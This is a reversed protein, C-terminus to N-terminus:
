SLNVLVGNVAGQLDKLTSTPKYLYEVVNLEEWTALMNKFREPNISSHIIIPINKWDDQSCFEYLFEFGNHLIMDLELVLCDFISKDMAHLASQADAAANVQFGVKKLADAYLGAALNDPEILLIRM